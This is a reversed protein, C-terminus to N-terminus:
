RPLKGVIIIQRVQAYESFMVNTLVKNMKLGVQLSEKNLEEITNEKADKTESFPVTMRSKFVM